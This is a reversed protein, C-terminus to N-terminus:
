LFLEIYQYYFDKPLILSAVLNGRTAIPRIRVSGSDSPRRGEGASEIMLFDNVALAVHHIPKNEDAFFLISDKEIGSGIAFKKYFNYLDRSSMLYNSPLYGTAKLSESVMGSCDLGTEVFKGGWTYPVGILNMAYESPSM